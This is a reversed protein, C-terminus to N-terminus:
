MRFDIQFSILTNRAPTNSKYYYTTGSLKAALSIFNNLGYKGLIYYRKGKGYLATFFAAGPIDSENIYIRSDYSDTHFASIGTELELGGFPYYRLFGGLVYGNGNTDNDQFRVYGLRVAIFLNKTLGYEAAIRDSYKDSGAIFASTDSLLYQRQRFRSELFVRLPFNQPLWTASFRYDTTRPFFEDAITRETRSSLDAYAQLTLQNQIVSKRLGLYFGRENQAEDSNDGFVGGFPSLFNDPLYRYQASMEFLGFPYSISSLVFAGASAADSASRAYEGRLSVSSFSAAAALSYMTLTTGYFRTNLSDNKEVYKDYSTKYTGADLYVVSSDNQLANWRLNAGYTEQQASERRDLESTTRHYGTNNLSSITGSDTVSADIPRDSYFPTLTVTGIDLAGSIGRFFQYSSSSSYAKLGVPRKGLPTIVDSSKSQIIGSQMALGEGYSLSYDGVIVNRLRIDDGLSVPAILEVNAAVHDFFLPEGAGKAQVFTFRIADTTVRLRDYSKLPSGRYYGSSYEEENTANPDATVRSRFEVRSSRYPSFTVLSRALPYLSRNIYQQFVKETMVSDNRETVLMRNIDVDYLYRLRELTERDPRALLIPSSLLDDLNEAYQDLSFTFRDDSQDNNFADQLLTGLFDKYFSEKQIEQAFVERACLLFFFIAISKVM